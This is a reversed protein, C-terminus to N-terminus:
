RNCFGKEVFLHILVLHFLMSSSNRMLYLRNQYLQTQQLLQVGATLRLMQEVGQLEQPLYLM